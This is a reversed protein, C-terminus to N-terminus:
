PEPKYKFTVREEGDLLQAPNQAMSHEIADFCGRLEDTFELQGVDPEIGADKNNSIVAGLVTELFANFSEEEIDLDFLAQSFDNPHMQSLMVLLDLSTPNENPCTDFHDEMYKEVDAVDYFEIKSQSM